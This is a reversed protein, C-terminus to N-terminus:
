FLLEAFYILFQKVEAHPTTHVLQGDITGFLDQSLRELVFCLTM